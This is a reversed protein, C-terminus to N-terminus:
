TRIMTKTKWKALAFVNRAGVLLLSFVKWCRQGVSIIVVFLRQTTKPTMFFSFLGSEAPFTDVAPLNEVLQILPEHVRGHVEHDLMKRYLFRLM